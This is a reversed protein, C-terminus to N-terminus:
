ASSSVKTIRGPRQRMQLSPSSRIAEAPSVTKMGRPLSCLKLTVPSAGQRCSTMRVGAAELPDEGVHGRALEGYRLVHGGDLFGGLPM